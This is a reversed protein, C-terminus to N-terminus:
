GEVSWLDREEAKERSCGDPYTDCVILISPHQYFLSKLLFIRTFYLFLAIKARQCTAFHTKVNLM